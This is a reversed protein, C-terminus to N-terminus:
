FVGEWGRQSDHDGNRRRGCETRQTYQTHKAYGSGASGCRRLGGTGRGGIDSLGIWTAGVLLLLRM